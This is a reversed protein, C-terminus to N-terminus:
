LPDHIKTKLDIDTEFLRAVSQTTLLYVHSFWMDSSDAYVELSIKGASNQQHSERGCLLIPMQM